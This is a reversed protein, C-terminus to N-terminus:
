SSSRATTPSGQCACAPAISDPSDGEGSVKSNRMKVDPDVAAGLAALHLWRRRAPAAVWIPKRLVSTKYQGIGSAWPFASEETNNGASALPARTTRRSLNEAVM